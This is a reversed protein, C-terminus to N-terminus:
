GEYMINITGADFTNTGGQTTIRVRDLTASLSKTGASYGTANGSVDHGIVGTSTWTNSTINTIVVNGSHTGGSTAVNYIIFGDTRWTTAGGGGYSASSTYGSTEIGGSDGLQILYNDSGNTSVGSFMVTIRKVGSPIGTFDISTGSTSNVATGSSIAGSSTQWTPASGSGNSTLVQGSTGYNAGALGWAGNQAIRLRETPSSAGDATTSFVLRSPQDTGSTYGGDVFAAIRAAFNHASDAFDIVGLLSGDSLGTNTSRTIMVNGGGVGQFISTVGASTSSTGVLLRGQPDLSVDGKPGQPGQPGAPGAPGVIGQPGAIGQL